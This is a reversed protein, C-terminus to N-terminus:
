EQGGQGSRRDNYKGILSIGGGVRDASVAWLAEARSLGGM